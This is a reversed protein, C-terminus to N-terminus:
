VTTWPSKTEELQSRFRERDWQPSTVKTLLRPPKMEATSSSPIQSINYEELVAILGGIHDAHPHTAAVFDIRTVNLTQLYGVVTEGASRPGGDILMDLTPTDVFISDGQGVDIFHVTVNETLPLSPITTISLPISEPEPDPTPEEPEPEPTSPDPIPEPEPEPEPEPTPQSPEGGNSERITSTQFRWDTDSDVDQGNPYRAWSEDDNYDDSLAPTKDIENGTADRLIIVEGDNDLWQSGRTIVYFSNADIVTGGPITVTVTKGSTTSLTWGSIDVAESAPNYLEVWEEVSLYNDNGPPNQDFENIVLHPPTTANVLYTISSFLLLFSTYLKISKKFSKM